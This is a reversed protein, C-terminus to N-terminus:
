NLTIKGGKIANTGTAALDVKGGAVSALGAAGVHVVGGTMMNVGGITTLMVGGVVQTMPAVVSANAAAATTIITGTITIMGGSTMHIKSAGCKLTISSGANVVAKNGVNETLNNGIKVDKNNGVSETSNNGVQLADNNVIDMKRNNNVILTQDNGVATNMDHQANVRIQEKGATDDMSMENFGSGKHTQSKMGSRTMEGPLSFPPSHVANYVRGTIIPEDPDGEIFDVIVEEGIRPLDMGGWKGGAHVQSVRIWCSSDENHQGERDWHFQVKVRGHADPYIEEKAPGVVMATQPGEVVPKPTERRPRFRSEAPIATFFNHFELRGQDESRVDTTYDGVSTAITEIATIAFSKGEESSMRHRVIKFRGGASFSRYTSSGIVTDFGAEMEEMRITALQTGRSKEGYRGHYDYVELSDSLELGLQSAQSVHLNDTPTEFNFHRHAFNGPQIQYRHEWDKIQDQNGTTHHPLPFEAESDDLEYFSAPQDGLVLTHKDQAHEFFYFIGEEELLRSVFNLDSERYQVCYVHEQYDSTLEWRIDGFDLEAFIQEVIQRTTKDQFIRCDSTQSLFWLKPVIVVRYDIYREGWGAQRFESVFGHFFRDKEGDQDLRVVVPNGVIQRPDISKDVPGCVDLEYRFLGSFEETGRIGRAVLPQEIAFHASIQRTEQSRAM